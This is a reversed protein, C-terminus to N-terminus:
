RIRGVGPQTRLSGFALVPAFIFPVLGLGVGFATGKDFRKAIDIGVVAAMVVNVVPVLLVLGQWLPRRAISVAVFLNVVPILALIGPRGAAAFVKWYAVHCFIVVSLIVTFWVFTAAWEGLGSAVIVDPRQEM